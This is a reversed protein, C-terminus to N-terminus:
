HVFTSITQSWESTGTSDKVAVQVGLTSNLPIGTITVEAIPTGELVVYTQGNTLTYRWLYTRAKSMGKGTTVTAGPAVLQKKSAKAHVTGTGATFTLVIIPHEAVTHAALQMGASKALNEAENPSQNCLVEVYSRLSELSIWLADRAVSRAATTGIAKTRVVTQHSAVYTTVQSLLITMTVPPTAFLVVNQAMCTQINPAVIALEAYDDREVGLIVRFHPTTTM